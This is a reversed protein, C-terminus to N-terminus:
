FTPQVDILCIAYIMYLSLKTSILAVTRHMLRGLDFILFEASRSPVEILVDSKVSWYIKFIIFFVNM